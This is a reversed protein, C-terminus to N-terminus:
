HESNEAKSDTDNNEEDFSENEYEKVAQENESIAKDISKISDHMREEYEDSKKLLARRRDQFYAIDDESLMGSDLIKKLEYDREEIDSNLKSYEQIIGARINELNMGAKKIEELSPKENM